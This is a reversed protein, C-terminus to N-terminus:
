NIGMQDMALSLAQGYDLTKDAALIAQTKENLKVMDEDVSFGETESESLTTTGVDSGGSGIPTANVINPLSEMLSLCTDADAEYLKKYNDKQAPLVRAGKSDNLAASFANEFRTEKLMVSAAAGDAAQKSLTAFDTASLVIAGEAKAMDALTKNQPEPKTTLEAVKALVSAEDADEALGLATLVTAPFKMEDPSYTETSTQIHKSLSVTAMSLFPRNTLAVGLLATGHEKGTEDKYNAVYSPSIYAYRRNGVLEKGLDNWEAKAWLETGGARIDLDTIWGAAETNGQMEPRHDVDIPLGLRGDAKSLSNFNKMWAKFDQITIKFNGYRPDKYSGVKAIQIFSTAGGESLTASVPADTIVTLDLM